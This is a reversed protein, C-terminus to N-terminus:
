SKFSQKLSKMPKGLSKSSKRLPEGLSNLRKRSSEYIEELPGKLLEGMGKLIERIKKISWKITDPLRLSKRLPEIEIIEKLIGHSEQPSM